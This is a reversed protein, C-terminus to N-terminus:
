SSDPVNRRAQEQVRRSYEPKDKVFAEFAERQAPSDPNPNILLDQIGSFFVM